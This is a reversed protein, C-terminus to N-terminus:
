FNLLLGYLFCFLIMSEATKSLVTNLEVGDKSFIDRILRLSFPFLLFGGLSTFTENFCYINILVLLYVSLTLLTYEWRVFRSGLLVALTRKRIKKDTNRDRLNNVSIICTSFLGPMIALCYLVGNLVESFGELHLLYVVGLVAVPGFFIFAFIDGLGNYGLPYAGGTYWYACLLSIVTIVAIVFGGVWTLVAGIVIIIIALILIAVKIEHLSVLGSQTVRKPGLRNEGDAGRVFDLYDNVLNAKIQLCVVGILCLLAIIWYEWRNLTTSQYSFGMALLVPSIGIWLTKPRIAIIWIKFKNM